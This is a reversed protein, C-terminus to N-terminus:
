AKLEGDVPAIMWRPPLKIKRRQSRWIHLCYPHASVYSSEKPHFQFATEEKKFFLNKIWNMEEWTPCRHPLSVSVHDWGKQDSIVVSLMDGAYPIEFAGNMGYTHDSALIGETIRHKEINVPVRDKM